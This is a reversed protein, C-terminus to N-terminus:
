QQGNQTLPNESELSIVLWEGEMMLDRQSM